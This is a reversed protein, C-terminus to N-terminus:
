RANKRRKIAPLGVTTPEEMMKRAMKKSMEPIDELAKDGNIIFGIMAMGAYVAELQEQDNM